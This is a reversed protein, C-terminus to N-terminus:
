MVQALMSGWGLARNLMAPRVATANSALGSFITSDEMVSRLTGQLADVDDAPFTLCAKGITEAAPVVSSTVSPVGQAAAELVVLALGETVTSRTPCVLLDANRGSQGFLTANSAWIL